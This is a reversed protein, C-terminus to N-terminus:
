KTLMTKSFKGLSWYKGSTKSSLEESNQTDDTLHGYTLYINSGDPLGNFDNVSIFFTIVGTGKNVKQKSLKFEKDGIHLIYRSGGMYFPKSSILTFSITSDKQTVTSVVIKAKNGAIANGSLFISIFISFLVILNKM